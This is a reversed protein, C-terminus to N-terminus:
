FRGGLVSQTVNRVHRSVAVHVVGAVVISIPLAIWWRLQLLLWLPLFVIILAAASLYKGYNMLFLNFSMGRLQKRMDRIQNDLEQRERDSSM